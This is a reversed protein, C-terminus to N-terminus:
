CRSAERISHDRRRAARRLVRGLAILIRPLRNGGQAQGVTAILRGNADMSWRLILLM